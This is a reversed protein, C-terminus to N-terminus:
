RHQWPEAPSDDLGGPSDSGDGESRVARQSGEVEQTEELHSEVLDVSAHGEDSASREDPEGLHDGDQLVPVKSEDGGVRRLGSRYASHLVPDASGHYSQYGDDLAREIVTKKVDPCYMELGRGFDEDSITGTYLHDILVDLQQMQLALTAEEDLAAVTGNDNDEVVHVSGDVQTQVGPVGWPSSDAPPVAPGQPMIEQDQPHGYYKAAAVEMKVAADRVAKALAAPTQCAYTDGMVNLVWGSVFKTVRMTEAAFPNDLPNTGPPNM